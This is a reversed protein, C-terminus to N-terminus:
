GKSSLVYYSIALHPAEVYNDIGAYKVFRAQTNKYKSALNTFLTSAKVIDNEASALRALYQM